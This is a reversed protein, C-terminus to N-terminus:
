APDERLRALIAQVRAPDDSALLRAVKQRLSAADALLIERKVPLLSAPHMSFQALGM